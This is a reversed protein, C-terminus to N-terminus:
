VPYLACLPEHRPEGKVRKYAPRPEPSHSSASGSGDVPRSSNDQKVSAGELKGPLTHQRGIQPTECSSNRFFCAQCPASGPSVVPQRISTHSTQLCTLHRSACYTCKPRKEPLRTYEFTLRSGGASGCSSEAAERLLRQAIEVDIWFAKPTDENERLQIVRRVLMDGNKLSRNSVILQRFWRM